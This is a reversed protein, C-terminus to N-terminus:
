IQIKDRSKLAVVTGCLLAILTVLLVFVSLALSHTHEGFQQEAWSSPTSPKSQAAAQRGAAQEPLMVAPAEFPRKAGELHLMAEYGWRSPMVNSMARVPEPMQPLPVMGGGLIVMPLVILPLLSLATMQTPSLASTLLGLGLGVLSVLFGVMFLSLWHGQVDIYKLGYVLMACQAACLLALVAFKSLVYEPIRLFVMRERFYIAKEAVIERIANSTGLWIASIVMLFLPLPTFLKSKNFLLAILTAIVPAQFLLILTNTTDKLKIAITRLCLTKFQAMDFRQKREPGSPRPEAVPATKLSAARGDVFTSCLKSQVYKAAWGEATGSNVGLLACEPRNTEAESCGPNFFSISDPWSPGYYVMKGHHLILINDMLKYSDIDPQHITLIITKGEDALGRLLRMVLQTDVASLGSTPEDLFLVGPDTLLEMALNVRKKQGGSIGKKESSGIITNRVDVNHEPALLGLKRLVLDVRNDIEERSTDSPLRLRAAFRLAEGVTLEKHLVDEQPVYGILSKFQPYNSYLEKGNLLVQGTTPQDYGNLARFLTTKGAGSLGMLGVFEKAYTTFSVCHLITKPKGRETVVKTIGRADLRLNSSFDETVLRKDATFQFCFSGLAISDAESVAQAYNVQRGNVFTGNTSGLDELVWVGNSSPTIRAHLRSVTPHDLIVDAPAARGLTIPMTGSILRVTSQPEPASIGASDLLFAGSMAFSGFYVVDQPSLPAEGIRNAPSNLALGNTSNEDRISWGGSQLPHLTAHLRSIQKNEIVIDNGQARGIRLPLRGDLSPGRRASMGEGALRLVDSMQVPMDAVWFTEGPTLVHQSVRQPDVGCYIGNASQLDQITWTGDPNPWLKAHRRSVRQSELVLDNDADRGITVVGNRSSHMDVWRRQLENNGTREQKLLAVCFGGFCRM